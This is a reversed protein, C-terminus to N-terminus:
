RLQQDSRRSFWTGKMQKLWRVGEELLAKKLEFVEVTDCVGERLNRLADESRELLKVIQTPLPVARLKLTAMGGRITCDQAIM